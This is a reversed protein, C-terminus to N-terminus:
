RSWRILGFPNKKLPIKGAPIKQFFDFRQSSTEADFLSPTKILNTTTEFLNGNVTENWSPEGCNLGLAPPKVV